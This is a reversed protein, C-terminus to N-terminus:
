INIFRVLGPPPYLGYQNLEQSSQINMEENNILYNDKRVFLYTQRNIPRVYFSINKWSDKFATYLTNGFEVENIANALEKKKQGAIVWDIYYINYNVNTEFLLGAKDFLSGLTENSSIEVNYTINTYVLKFTFNMIIEKFQQM